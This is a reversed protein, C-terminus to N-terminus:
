TAKAVYERGPGLSLQGMSGIAYNRLKVAPSVELPTIQQTACCILM